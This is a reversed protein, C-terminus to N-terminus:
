LRYKEKYFKLYDNYINEKLDNKPLLFLGGDERIIKTILHHTFLDLRANKWIDVEPREAYKAIMEKAQCLTAKVFFDPNYKQERHVLVERLTIILVKELIEREAENNPTM